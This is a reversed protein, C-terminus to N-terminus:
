KGAKIKRAVFNVSAEYGFTGLGAIVAVAKNSLFSKHRFAERAHVNSIHCEVFPINVGTLADRIGV